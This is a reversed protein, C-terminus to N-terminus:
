AQEADELLDLLPLLLDLTCTKHHKLDVPLASCFLLFPPVWFSIEVGPSIGGGMFTSGDMKAPRPTGGKILCTKKVELTIETQLTNGKELFLKLYLDLPVM